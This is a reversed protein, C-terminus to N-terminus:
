CNHHVFAGDPFVDFLDSLSGASLIPAGEQLIMSVFNPCTIEGGNMGEEEFREIDKHDHFMLGSLNHM